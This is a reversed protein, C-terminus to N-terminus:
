TAGGGYTSTVMALFGGHYEPEAKKIIGRVTLAYFIQRVTQPHDEELISRIADRIAAVQTKLRRTRKISKPVYSPEPTSIPTTDIVSNLEM